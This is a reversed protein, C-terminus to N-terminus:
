FAPSHLYGAPAHTPQSAPAQYSTAHPGPLTPGTDPFLGGAPM